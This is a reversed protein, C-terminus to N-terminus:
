PYALRPDDMRFERFPEVADPYLKLGVSNPLERVQEELDRLCTELGLMPDVGVYTLFRGPWRTGAEVNKERSCLGDHFWSDLRLNHNVAMDVDTELFLTRALVEIPWDSVFVDAPVQYEPPNWGQHLSVFLDRLATAYRNPRLNDDRLNCAHAVANIVFVDDIM